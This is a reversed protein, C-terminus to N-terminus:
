FRLRVAAGFERPASFTSEALGMGISSNGSIRYRSDTLNLGFLSVEWREDMTMFSAYANAIDFHPQSLRPDNFVDHQVEDRYIYDGRVKFSGAAIFWEYQLGTSVMWQPAKVLAKDATLRPLLTTLQPDLQTYKGDLYGAAFNLELGRTLRAALEFEVGTIRAEGANRVFNQPTANISLQMDRYDNYFLAANAVM